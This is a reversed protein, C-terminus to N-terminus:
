IKKDSGRVLEESLLAMQRCAACITPSLRLTAADMKKTGVGNSSHLTAMLGLANNLAIEMGRYGQARVFPASGNDM